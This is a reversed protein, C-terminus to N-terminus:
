QSDRRPRTRVPVSWSHSRSIPPSSMAGAATMERAFQGNGCAVELVRQAPEIGLLWMQAPAVLERHVRNGESGIYGDWFPAIREWRERVDGLSESM